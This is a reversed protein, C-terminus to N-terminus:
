SRLVRPTDDISGDDVVITEFDVNRQWLVSRLSLELLKSRNRTPIIVSVETVAVRENRLRRTTSSRKSNRFGHQQWRRRAIPPFGRARKTCVWHADFATVSM